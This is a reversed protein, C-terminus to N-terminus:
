FLFEAQPAAKHLLMLFEDSNIPVIKMMKGNSATLRCTPGFRFTHQTVEIKILDNLAVHKTPILFYYSSLFGKKLILYSTFARLMLVFGIFIFSPIYWSSVAHLDHHGFALSMCGDIFIPIGALGSSRINRDFIIICTM